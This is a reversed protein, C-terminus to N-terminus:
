EKVEFERIEYDSWRREKALEEMREKADEEYLYVHNEIVVDYDAGYGDGIKEIVAYVKM